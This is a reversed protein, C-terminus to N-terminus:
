TSPTTLVNLLEQLVYSPLEDRYFGDDQVLAENAWDRGMTSRLHELAAMAEAPHVELGQQLLQQTWRELQDTVMWHHIGYWSMSNLGGISSVAAEAEESTLYLLTSSWPACARDARLMAFFCGAEGRDLQEPVARDVVARLRLVERLDDPDASAGQQLIQPAWSELQAILTLTELM